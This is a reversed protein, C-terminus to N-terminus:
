LDEKGQYNYLGNKYVILSNSNFKKIHKDINAIKAFGLWSNLSKKKGKKFNSRFKRRAKTLVTLEKRTIKYGLGIAYGKTNISCKYTNITLKLHKDLYEIVQKQIYKAEQKTRIIFFMDDAYRVYYKVKLVRKVFHDFDKLYYNAFQQSTVNGLPLGTPEEQFSDILKCLLNYTRYCLIDKRLLIKLIDRDITFFFKSIDMKLVIYTPEKKINGKYDVYEKELGKWNNYAKRIFEQIRLVARQNGRDIICAYTDYIHLRKFYKSIITAIAFQVIKDKFDPVYILREKTDSVTHKHYSGFVYTDQVLEKRISHALTLMSPYHYSASPKFKFSGSFCHSVSNVINDIDIIKSFMTEKEIERYTM